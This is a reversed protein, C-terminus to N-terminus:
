FRIGTEGRMGSLDLSKAGLLGTEESVDLLIRIDGYSVGSELISEVGEIVAAIGAKDDAGLITRGDSRIVGEDVVVNLGDTPEVTDMHCCFFIKRANAATGKRFAIVNGANGGIQTGADDEEVEFGLSCLKAAVYDAM